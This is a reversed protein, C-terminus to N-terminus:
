LNVCNIVKGAQYAEIVEIVGEAVANQAQTTSAGIHHTGYVNPHSAVESDFEAESSGPENAYVDLGARINKENMASILAAEDIIEGRATNLIITGPQMKDLMAKNIMGKTQDNSPVHFSLIDCTKILADIDEVQNIGLESIKDIMEQSRSSKAVAFVEIGFAKARQALAFGISGLGVIGLKRGYLGQAVSFQKKNWSANRLGIVNDPINRDISLLLGMALEAVALANKGPVNCVDVGHERACPKDITNTGAGARIVLKLNSAAEVTAPTVKTSRVVLVENDAIAGPLDDASLDGQLTCDHGQAQLQEFYNPPFKDAFLIKM